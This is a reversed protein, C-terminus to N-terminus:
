FPHSVLNLFSTLISRPASPPRIKSIKPAKKLPRIKSSNEIPLFHVLFDFISALSHDLPGKCSKQPLPRRRLTPGYLSQLRFIESIQLFRCLSELVGNGAQWLCPAASRLAGHPALVAAGESQLDASQHTRKNCNSANQM